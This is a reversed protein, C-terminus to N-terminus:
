GLAALAADYDPEETIEAVQQTYIVQDNADLVLVARSYLGLMPGDVIDLGYDAGFTSRYGSLADADEIGEAGCFRANAFPLDMSINLVAVGERGAAKENFARVSAACVPTDLSPFVNLVKKVGAYDSLSVPSLDTGVLEFAPAATGQAPLSGSTHIPTGKLTIEAM